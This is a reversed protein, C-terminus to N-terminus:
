FDIEHMTAYAILEHGDDDNRDEYFSVRESTIRIECDTDNLGDPLMGEEYLKSILELPHASMEVIQMFWNLHILNEEDFVSHNFIAKM